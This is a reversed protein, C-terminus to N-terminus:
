ICFMYTNSPFIRSWSISFRYADFNLKQMIDVDQQMWSVIRKANCECYLFTPFQFLLAIRLCALVFLNMNFSDHGKLIINIQYTRFYKVNCSFFYFKHM